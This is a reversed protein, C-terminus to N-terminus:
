CCTIRQRYYWAVEIWRWFQEPSGAGFLKCILLAALSVLMIRMLPGLGGTKTRRKKGSHMAKKGSGAIVKQVGGSAAELGLTGLVKPAHKTIHPM